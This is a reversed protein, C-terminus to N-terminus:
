EVEKKTVPTVLQDKLSEAHIRAYQTGLFATNDSTFYITDITPHHKFVEKARKVVAESLKSKSKAEAEPAPTETAPAEPAKAEPALTESVPTEPAKVEPVPTESVPAEPAKVEPAPAKEGQVKEAHTGVSRTNKAM